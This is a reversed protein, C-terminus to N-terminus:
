IMWIWWTRQVDVSLGRVIVGVIVTVIVGVVEIEVMM